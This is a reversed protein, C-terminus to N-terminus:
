KEINLLEVEFILTSYPPIPSGQRMTEGYALEQPIFLQMKSGVKMLQLAETWGKIVQNVGFVAPEGRDYSSDFVTGDLLTGKYHVKVQDEATPQKGWGKRIVKYQLGSETVQVGEKSKNEELFKEGEVKNPMFKELEAKRQSEQLQMFYNRMFESAEKPDMLYTASSDFADNLGQVMADVDLISDIQGGKINNAIDLGIGYSVKKEDTDLTVQKKEEKCSFLTIAAFIVALGKKM